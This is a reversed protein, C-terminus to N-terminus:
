AGGEHAYEVLGAQVIRTLFHHSEPVQDYRAKERLDKLADIMNGYATEAQQPDDTYEVDYGLRRLGQAEDPGFIPYDPIHTHLLTTVAVTNWGHLLTGLIRVPAPDPWVIGAMKDGLLVLAKPDLNNTTKADDRHEDLYAVLPALSKNTPPNHAAYMMAEYDRDKPLQADHRRRLTDLFALPDGNKPPVLARLRRKPFFTRRPLPM